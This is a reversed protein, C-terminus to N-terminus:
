SRLFDSSDFYVHEVREGKTERMATWHFASRSIGNLFTQRGLKRMAGLRTLPRERGNGLILTYKTNDVAAEIQELDEKPFGISLIYAKDANTLKM